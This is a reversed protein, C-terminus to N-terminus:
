KDVRRRARAAGNQAGEKEAQPKNQNVRDTAIQQGRPDAAAIGKIQSKTTATTTAPESSFGTEDITFQKGGSVDTLGESNVTVQGNSGVTRSNTRIAFKTELKAQGDDPMLFTAISGVTHGKGSVNTGQVSDNIPAVDDVSRDIGAVVLRSSIEVHV